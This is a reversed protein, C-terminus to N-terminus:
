SFVKSQYEAVTFRKDPSVTDILEHPVSRLETKSPKATGIDLGRYVQRSDASIIYGKFKKALKLALASKGSATPGLIVILQPFNSTRLEFNSIKKDAELM